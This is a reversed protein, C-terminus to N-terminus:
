SSKCNLNSILEVFCNPSINSLFPSGTTSLVVRYDNPEGSSYAKVFYKLQENGTLVFSPLILYDDNDGGNIDTYIGAAQSGGVGNGTWTKWFDGDANEDIQMWCSPLDPTTVGEFDETWPLLSIADCLTTFMGEASWVGTGCDSMVYWYYTTNGTLPTLLYEGVGGSVSVDDLVDGTETSPDTLPTTSVELIWDTAGLEDWSLTAESADFVADLNTPTPCALPTTFMYEVSWDGLCDSQVYVYYDTDPNLSGLAQLPTTAVVADFVDGGVSTPDITITSVKLNWDTEFGGAVWQIDATTSTMNIAEVSSPALCVEEITLDYAFCDPSPYIDLMVYYTGVTLAETIVRDASGSNEVSNILSGTDPCGDFLFLGTWTTATAMTIKIVTNSTIDLRYIADEGNDYSTTLNYNDGLGCTTSIHNYTLDTPIDVIIPNSCDSGPVANVTLEGNVNTTGDWFGGVFGGYTYPGGDLRWRSAYYYTGAPLGSVNLMFEDNNGVDAGAYAAPMWTIWTSPDDNTMSYGFWCEVGTGAAAPNADTIGAEYAQAYVDVNENALMTHTGPFQLNCWTLTATPAEKIQLDDVYLNFSGYDSSGIIRVQTTANAGTLNVNAETWDGITGDQEMYFVETWTSGNTSMEAKVWLDTDAFGDMWYQFILIPSTAGSADIVDTTMTTTNGSSASYVDFMAALTGEFVSGPGYSTGDNSEWVYASTGEITWNTLPWTEFPEVFPFALAGGGMTFTGTPFQSTATANTTEGDTANIGSLTWDSLTFTSAPATYGNRYAWGDLYEWPMGTGDEGIVGYVDYVSGSLYLEIVDDGNPTLGGYTYDPDFGFYSNFLPQESAVYLYTGATVADAPFSYAPSGASAAGNSAVSIGYVSLDAIDNAVYLEIAKPVGGSLPGDFVGTLVLNQAKLGFTCGILLLFTVLSTFFVKKM